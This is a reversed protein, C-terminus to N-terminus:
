FAELGELKAAREQAEKAEERAIQYDEGRLKSIALMGMDAQELAITM